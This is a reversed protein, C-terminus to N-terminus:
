NCIWGNAFLAAIYGWRCTRGALTQISQLVRDRTTDFASTTAKITAEDVYPGRDWFQWKTLQTELAALKKVEEESLATKNKLEEQLKKISAKLEAPSPNTPKFNDPKEKALEEFDDAQELLDSFLAGLNFSPPAKAAEAKKRELVALYPARLDAETTSLIASAAGALIASRTNGSALQGKAWDLVMQTATATATPGLLNAALKSAFEDATQFGPFQTSFESMFQIKTALTLGSEEKLGQQLEAPSPLRNLSVIYLAEIEAQTPAVKQEATANAAFLAAALLFVHLMTKM